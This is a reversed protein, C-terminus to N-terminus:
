QVSRPAPCVMCDPPLETVTLPQVLLAGDEALMALLGTISAGSNCIAFAPVGPASDRLEAAISAACKHCIGSHRQFSEAARAAQHHTLTGHSM